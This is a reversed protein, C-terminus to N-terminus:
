RDYFHHVSVFFSFIRNKIINPKNEISNPEFGIRKHIKARYDLKRRNNTMFIVYQTLFSFFEIKKFIENIKSRIANLIFEKTYKQVIIEIEVM